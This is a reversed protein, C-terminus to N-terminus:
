PMFLNTIQYKFKTYFNVWYKLHNCLINRVPHFDDAIIKKGKIGFWYVYLLLLGLCLASEYLKYAIM